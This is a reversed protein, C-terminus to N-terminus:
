YPLELTEIVSAIQSNQLLNAALVRLDKRQAQLSRGHVYFVGKFRLSHAIAPPAVYGSSAQGSPQEMVPIVLEVEIQYAGNANKPDVRKVSVQEMAIAAVDVGNRKYLPPTTQMPNYVHSVPTPTVGDNIAIAAIQPM